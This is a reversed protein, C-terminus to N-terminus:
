YISSSHIFSCMVAYDEGKQGPTAREGDRWFEQRKGRKMQIILWYKKFTSIELPFAPVSKAEAAYIVDTASM